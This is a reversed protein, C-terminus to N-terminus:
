FLIRDHIVDNTFNGRMVSFLIYTNTYICIYTTYIYPYISYLYLYIYPIYGYKYFIYGYLIFIHIYIYMYVMYNNQYNWRSIFTKGFPDFDLYDDTYKVFILM